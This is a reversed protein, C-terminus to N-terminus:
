GGLSSGLYDIESAVSVHGGVRPVVHNIPLDLAALHLLSDEKLTTMLHVRREHVRSVDYRPFSLGNSRELQTEHLPASKPLNQLMKYPITCCQALELGRPTSTVLPNQPNKIYASNAPKM